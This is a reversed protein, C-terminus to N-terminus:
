ETCKGCFRSGSANNFIVPPIGTTITEQEDSNRQLVNNRQNYICIRNLGIAVLQPEMLMCRKIYDKFLPANGGTLVVALDVYQEELTMFLSEIEGVIGWFAGCLMADRTNQGIIGHPKDADIKPLDATGAHMADLRMQLGPSINGGLLLRTDTLLDCTICTGADVVLVSRNPCLYAAGVAAAIRDGGLTQPTEYAPAIPLPTTHDLMIVNDCFARVLTIIDTKNGGVSSIIAQKIPYNRVISQIDIPQRSSFSGTFQVADERFITIKTRSNGTDVTLNMKNTLFIVGCLYAKKISQQCHFIIEEYKM